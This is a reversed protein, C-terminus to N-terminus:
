HFSEVDMVAVKEAPEDVNFILQMHGSEEDTTADEL